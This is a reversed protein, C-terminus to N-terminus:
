IMISSIPVIRPATIPVRPATAESKNANTGPPCTAFVLAIYSDDPEVQPSSDEEAKASTERLMTVGDSTDAPTMM